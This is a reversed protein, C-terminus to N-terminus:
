KHNEMKRVRSTFTWTSGEARNSTQAVEDRRQECRDAPATSHVGNSSVSELVCSLPSGASDLFSGMFGFSERYVVDYVAARCRWGLGFAFM